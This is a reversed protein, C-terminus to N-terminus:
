HYCSAGSLTTWSLCVAQTSVVDQSAIIDERERVAKFIRPQDTVM